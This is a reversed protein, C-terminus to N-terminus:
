RTDGFMQDEAIQAGRMMRQALEAATEEAHADDSLVQTLPIPPIAQALPELRERVTVAQRMSFAHAFEQLLTRGAEVVRPGDQLLAQPRMRDILLAWSEVGDTAKAQRYLWQRVRELRPAMM